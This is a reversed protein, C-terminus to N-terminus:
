AAVFSFMWDSISLNIFVIWSYLPSLKVSYSSVTTLRKTSHMLTDGSLVISIMRFPPIWPLSFTHIRNLYKLARNSGISLQTIIPTNLTNFVKIYSCITLPAFSNAPSDCFSFGKLNFSSLNKGKLSFKDSVPRSTSIKLHSRYLSSM